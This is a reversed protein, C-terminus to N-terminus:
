FNYRVGVGMLSVKGDDKAPQKVFDLVVSVEKTAKYALGVGYFSNTISDSGSDGTMQFETKTRLKGIRGFLELDPTINIFPRLAIGYANKVKINIDSENSFSDSGTGMMFTGEVALNDVIVKGVNLRVAKLKASGLEYESTDKVKISDYMAEGYFQGVSQAFASTSCAAAIAALAIIKKM